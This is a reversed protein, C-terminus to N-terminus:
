FSTFWALQVWRMDWVVECGWSSSADSLVAVSPIRSGVADLLGQGNWRVIFKAWWYIDSRADRNLRIYLHFEKAVTALDILRRLFVRGPKVVSAAHQLKEILSLLKRNTCVRKIGLISAHFASAGGQGGNSM